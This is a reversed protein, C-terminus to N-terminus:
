ATVAGDLATEDVDLDVAGQLKGWAPGPTYHVTRGRREREVLEADILESLHWNALSPSIDLEDCVASQNLGPQELVLEAVDKTTENQLVSLVEREQEMYGAAPFFRRYRGKKESKVFDNKELRRLHYVTTGWGVDAAESLAHAHIGPDEKVLEYLQERVEHELMEDKEIRSYLSMAGAAAVWSVRPWYYALVAAAAFAAGSAAIVSTSSTESEAPPQAPTPSTGDQVLMWGVPGGEEASPQSQKWSTAGPQSAEAETSPDQNWEVGTVTLEPDELTGSGQSANVEGLRGHDVHVDASAATMTTPLKPVTTAVGDWPVSTTGDVYARTLTLVRDWGVDDRQEWTWGTTLTEDETGNRQVTVKTNVTVVEFTGQMHVNAGQAMRVEPGAPLQIASMEEPADHEDALRRSRDDPALTWNAEPTEARLSADDTAVLGTVPVRDDADRADITLTGEAEVSRRSTEEAGMQGCSNPDREFCPIRKTWIDVAGTTVSLAIPQEGDGLVVTGNPAELEAEQAVMPPAVHASDGHDAAVPVATVTLALALVIVPATRHM